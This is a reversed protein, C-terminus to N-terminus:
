VVGDYILHSVWTDEYNEKVILAIGFVKNGELQVTPWVCLRLALLRPRTYIHLTPIITIVMRKPQCYTRAPKSSLFVDVFKAIICYTLPVRCDRRRM